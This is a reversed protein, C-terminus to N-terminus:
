WNGLETSNTVLSCAPHGSNLEWRLHHLSTREKGGLGFWSQPGGLRRDLLYWLENQLPLTTGAHLQHNVVM